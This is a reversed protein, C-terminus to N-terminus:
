YSPVRLRENSETSPMALNNTDLITPTPDKKTSFLVSVLLWGQVFAANFIGGGHVTVSNGTFTSDIVTALGRLNAIGSGSISDSNSTFTSDRVTLTGASFVGGGFTGASNGTFTSGRVTGRLRPM